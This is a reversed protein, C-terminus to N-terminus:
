GATDPYQDRATGHLSNSLNCVTAMRSCPCVEYCSLLLMIDSPKRKQMRQHDIKMLDIARTKNAPVYAMNEVDSSRHFLSCAGATLALLPSYQSPM